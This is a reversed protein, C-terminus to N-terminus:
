NFKFCRQEFDDNTIPVGWCVCINGKVQDKLVIEENLPMKFRIVYPLAPYDLKDRWISM